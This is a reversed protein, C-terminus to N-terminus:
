SLLMEPVTTNSSAIFFACTVLSMKELEDVTYPVGVASGSVSSMGVPSGM